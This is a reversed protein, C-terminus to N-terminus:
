RMPPLPGSTLNRGFAMFSSRHPQQFKGYWSGHFIIMGCKRSSGARYQTGGIGEEEVWVRVFDMSDAGNKGFPLEKTLLEFTTVGVSWMDITLFNKPEQLQAPWFHESGQIEPAGYAWTTRVVRAVDQKIRVSKAFGFDALM